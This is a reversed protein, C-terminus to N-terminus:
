KIIIKGRVLYVYGNYQSAALIEDGGLDCLSNWLAAETSQDTDIPRTSARMTNFYGEKIENKPCVQVEMTAHRSDNDRKDDSADAIQYSYVIYNDTAIMYPAGSYAVDSKLSKRFPHFRDPSDKKVPTKWNNEITSRVVIPHLRAGEESTEIAMYIMGDLLMVVPMGDRHSGNQSVVRPASWSTGGDASEIVSINQWKSGKKWYPTEDAFYIQVTGDPLELVFPEWCGRLTNKTWKESKYVHRMASWTKGNDDSTKIAITYPFVSSAYKDDDKAQSDMNMPRYNCAFIIRGPKHPNNESLQTFEPNAATVRAKGAENEEIFHRMVVPSEESWTLGNDESFKIYNNASVSYCMMLRGDNLRHVRPYGGKVIKEPEDWVVKVTQKGPKTQKNGASADVNSCTLLVIFTFFIKLYKVM